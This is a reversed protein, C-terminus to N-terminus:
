RKHSRTEQPQSQASSEDGQPCKPFRIDPAAGFYKHLYCPCPQPRTSTHTLNPNLYATRIEQSLETLLDALVQERVDPFEFAERWDTGFKDRFVEQILRFEITNGRPMPIPLPPGSGRTYPSDLTTVPNVDLLARTLGSASPLSTTPQQRPAAAETSTTNTPPSTNQDMTNYFGPIRTQQGHAPTITAATLTFSFRASPHSPDTFHSAAGHTPSLRPSVCTLSLGGPLLLPPRFAPHLPDLNFQKKGDYFDPHPTKRARLRRRGHSPRPLQRILDRATDPRQRPRPRGTHQM